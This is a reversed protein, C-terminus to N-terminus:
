QEDGSEEDDHLDSEVEKLLKLINAGYEMSNDYIFTLEPTVRLNLSKALGARLFGSASKLGALVESQSIQKSMASVYVKAQKLDKTCDVGTVTVLAKQVRYDKVARMLASLEQLIADNVRDQRYTAM